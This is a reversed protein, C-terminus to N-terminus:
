NTRYGFVRYFRRRDARTREDKIIKDTAMTAESVKNWVALDESAELWYLWNTRGTFTSVWASGNWQGELDLIAPPPVKVEINDIVGHAFLSGASGTSQGADSYSAIAFTDVRFDTFPKGFGVANTALRASTVPGALVGNTTITISATENSASYAL